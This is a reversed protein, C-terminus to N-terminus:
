EFALERSFFPLVRTEYRDAVKNVHDGEAPAGGEPAFPAGFAPVNRSAQAEAVGSWEVPVTFGSLIDGGGAV